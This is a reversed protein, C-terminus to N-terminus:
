GSFPSPSDDVEEVEEEKVERACVDCFVPQGVIKVLQSRCAKHIFM